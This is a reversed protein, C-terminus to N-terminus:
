KRKNPTLVKKILINFNSEIKNNKEIKKNNLFYVCGLLYILVFYNYFFINFIHRNVWERSLNSIKNMVVKVTEHEM